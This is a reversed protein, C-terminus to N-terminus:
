IGNKTMFEYFKGKSKGKPIKKGFSCEYNFWLLQNIWSSFNTHFDKSAEKAWKIMEEDLTINVKKKM